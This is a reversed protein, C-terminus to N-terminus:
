WLGNIEDIVKKDKKIINKWENKYIFYSYSDLVHYLDFGRGKQTNSATVTAIMTTVQVYYREENNLFRGRLATNKDNYPFVDIILENDMMYEIFREMQEKDM